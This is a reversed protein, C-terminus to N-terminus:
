IQKCDWLKGEKVLNTHTIGTQLQMKNFVQTYISTLSLRCYRKIQLYKLPKTYMNYHICTTDRLEKPTKSSPRSTSSPTPTHTHLTEGLLTSQRHSALRPTAGEERRKAHAVLFVGLARFYSFAKFYRWISNYNAERVASTVARSTRSKENVERM